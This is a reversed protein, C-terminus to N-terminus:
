LSAIQQFGQNEFMIISSTEKHDFCLDV